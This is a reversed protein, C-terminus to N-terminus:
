KGLGNPTAGIVSGRLKWSLLENRRPPSYERLPRMRSYQVSRRAPTEYSVLPMGGSHTDGSVYSAFLITPLAPPLTCTPSCQRISATAASTSKFPVETS